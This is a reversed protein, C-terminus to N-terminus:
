KVCLLGGVNAMFEELSKLFAMKQKRDLAPPTSSATLKNFADALRQYIIPDQQSSLLTEVLESYEAKLFHRTALFLPSDTEQAKACQEALPTLAELCLQCVESSM